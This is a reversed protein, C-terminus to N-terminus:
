LNFVECIKMKVVRRAGLLETDAAVEAASLEGVEDVFCLPPFIVCWWNHGKAEGLNLRLARYEGAPLWIDGYRKAPFDFSGVEARCTYGMDRCIDAALQELNELEGLVIAEASDRDAAGEVRPTLYEVVADRVLLKTAQDQALDSNAVIHLRLPLEDAVVTDARASLLGLALGFLMLPLIAWRAKRGAGIEGLTPQIKYCDDCLLNCRFRAGEAIVAMKDAPQAFEQPYKNDM